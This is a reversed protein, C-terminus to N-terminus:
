ERMSLAVCCVSQNAEEIENGRLLDGIVSLILSTNNKNSQKKHM